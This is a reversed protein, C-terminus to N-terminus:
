YDIKFSIPIRYVVNVETDGQKGPKMKPLRQIVRKAEKELLPHSARAKVNDIEGKTNVKFEVYITHKKGTDMESFEDTRFKKRIFSNIKSSMCDKRDENSTLSECGPFVPVFEVELINLTKNTKVFTKTPTEIIPEDPKVETSGLKTEVVKNNPVKLITTAIKKRKTVVKKEVKKEVPVEKPKEVEYKRDEVEPLEFVNPDFATKETSLGYTNELVLFVTLLSVILGIQFFLRSNWNISVSKKDNRKSFTKPQDNTLDHKSLKM